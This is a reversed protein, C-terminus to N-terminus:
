LDVKRHCCQGLPSAVGLGLHSETISCQVGGAHRLVLCSGCPGWTVDEAGSVPFHRHLPRFCLFQAKGSDGHPAPQRRPAHRRHGHAPTGAHTCLSADDYLPTSTLLGEHHRVETASFWTAPRDARRLTRAPRLARHLVYSGHGRTHLM